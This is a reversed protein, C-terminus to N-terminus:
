HFAVAFASLGLTPANVVKWTRALQGFLGPELNLHVLRRGGDDVDIQATKQLRAPLFLLDSKAADGTRLGPDLRLTAM